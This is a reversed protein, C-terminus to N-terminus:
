RPRCSSLILLWVTVSHLVVAIARPWMCVHLCASLCAPLCASLCVSLCISLPVAVVVACCCAHSVRKGTADAINTCRPLVCEPAGKVFLVNTARAGKPRCLVSMSKRDRSFELLAVRTMESAWHESAFSAAAAKDTPKTQLM